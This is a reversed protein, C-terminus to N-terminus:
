NVGFSLEPLLLEEDLLEVVVVEVELEESAVASLRVLVLLEDADVDVSEELEVVVVEASEVEVLADELLEIMSGVFGLVGRAAAEEVETNSAATDVVDSETEAEAVPVGAM